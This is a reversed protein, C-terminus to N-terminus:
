SLPFDPYKYQDLLRGLLAILPKHPNLFINKVFYSYLMITLRNQKNFLKFSISPLKKALNPTNKKFLKKHRYISWFYM